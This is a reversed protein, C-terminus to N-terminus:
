HVFLVTSPSTSDCDLHPKSLSGKGNKTGNEADRLDEKWLWRFHRQIRRRLTEPPHLNGEHTECLMLM